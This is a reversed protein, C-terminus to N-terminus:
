ENIEIDKMGFKSINLVRTKRKFDYLRCLRQEFPLRTMHEFSLEEKIGALENQFIVKKGLCIKRIHNLHKNKFWRRKEIALEYHPVLALQLCAFALNEKLAVNKYKESDIQLKKLRKLIPKQFLNAMWKINIISLEQSLQIDRTLSLTDLLGRNNLTNVTDTLALKLITGIEQKILGHRIRYWIDWTVITRLSKQFYSVDQQPALLDSLIILQEEGPKNSKLTDVVVETKMRLLRISKLTLPPIKKRIQVRFEEELNQLYDEIKGMIEVINLGGPVGFDSRTIVATKNNERYLSAENSVSVLAKLYAIKRRADIEALSPIQADTYQLCQGQQNRSIKFEGTTLYHKKGCSVDFSFLSAYPGGGGGLSVGGGSMVASRGMLSVINDILSRRISVKETDSSARSLLRKAEEIAGAFAQSSIRISVVLLEGKQKEQAGVNSSAPSGAVIRVIWDNLFIFDRELLLLGLWGKKNKKDLSDQVSIIRKADRAQCYTNALSELACSAGMASSNNVMNKYVNNYFYSRIFGVLENLTTSVSYAGIGLPQKLFQSSLSVIQSAIAFKQGPNKGICLKDSELASFLSTVYHRYIGANEILEGENYHGIQGQLDILQIKKLALDFTMQAKVTADPEITIALLLDQTQKQLVNESHSNASRGLVKSILDSSRLVGDLAGRIARCNSQDRMSITLNKIYDMQQLAMETHPGDAGCGSAFTSFLSRTPDYQAESHYCFHVSALFIIVIWPKQHM